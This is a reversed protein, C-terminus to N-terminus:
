NTIAVRTSWWRRKRSRIVSSRATASCLASPSPKASLCPSQPKWPHEQLTLPVNKACHSFRHRRKPFFAGVLPVGLDSAFPPGM